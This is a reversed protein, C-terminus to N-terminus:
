TVDGGARIWRILLVPWLAAVGPLIILRFGVASGKSIPDVRGIGISLFVGAFLLGAAAYAELLSVLLEAPSM